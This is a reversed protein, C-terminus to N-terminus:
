RDKELLQELLNDFYGEKFEPLNDPPIILVPELGMTRISRLINDCKAKGIVPQRLANTANVLTIIRNGNEFEFIDRDRTTTILTGLIKRHQITVNAIKSIESLIDVWNDFCNSREAVSLESNVSDSVLSFAKDFLEIELSSRSPYDRIDTIKGRHSSGSELFKHDIIGKAAPTTSESQWRYIEYVEPSNEEMSM